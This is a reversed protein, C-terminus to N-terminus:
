YDRFMPYPGVLFDIVLCPTGDEGAQYSEKLQLPNDVSWGLDDGISIHPLKLYDYYENLSIYMESILRQNIENIASKVDNITSKFYRGSTVDYCLYDGNGTFIITGEKPPNAAIKDKYVADEAEIAKKEGFLEKVKGKYESLAVESLNYAAVLAAQKRMSKSHAMIISAITLSGSVAVPAYIKLVEIATSKKLEKIEEESIDERDIEDKAVALVDLAKPSAKTALFTTTVVGAVGIGTLIHAGNKDWISGLQKIFESM